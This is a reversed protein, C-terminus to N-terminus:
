LSRLGMVLMLGKLTTKVMIGQPNSLCTVSLLFRSFPYVVQITRRLMFTNYMGVTSRGSGRNVGWIGDVM